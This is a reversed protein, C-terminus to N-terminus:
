YKPLLIKFTSGKNIESEIFILGGHLEIFNKCITIGLGNGKEGRTGEKYYYNYQDFLLNIEDKSMGIGTDEITVLFKDGAYDEASITINGNETFKVANNILNNMVQAIKMKDISVNPNDMKDFFEIKNNKDIGLLIFSNISTNILDIINTSEKKLEIIGREIKSIDLIENVLSYLNQSIEKIILLYRKQVDNFNEQKLLYNVYGGITSLPSRLDHSVISIFENKLKNLKELEILNKKNEKTLIIKEAARKVSMKLSESDIPKEIFDYAGLKIAMIAGEVSAYGSLVLILLDLGNSSIYEMLNFGSKEPMNLDTIIIDYSIITIKAIADDVSVATDVGYGEEILIKKIRNSFKIEDDVLLIKVTNDNMM